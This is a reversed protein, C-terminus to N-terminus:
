PKLKQNRRDRIVMTESPQQREHSCKRTAESEPPESRTHNHDRIAETKSPEVRKHSCSSAAGIESPKLKQNSRDRIAATESPRPRQHSRDEFQLELCRGRSQDSSFIMLRSLGCECMMLVHLGARHHSCRKRCTLASEMLKARTAGDRGVAHTSPHSVSATPCRCM